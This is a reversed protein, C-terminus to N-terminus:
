SDLTAAIFETYDIQGSKDTDAKKLVELLEDANEIKLQKLGDEIEQFSLTGDGNKDIALFIDKLNKIDDPGAQVAIATMAAQQMKTYHQTKKLGGLNKIKALNDKAEGKTMMKVWKHDLVETASLRREPKCIMKKILDKAEKSIDAWEEGDFDYKGKIVLRLIEQDDDGCFAPYGCLLTYLICGAAWIDCKEDYNGALVEPSIYYPTGAKTEMKSIGNHGKTFLKSLGFDIIKIDSTDEKNEYLFNEPKLDRHVIGQNHCYNVGMMIQKFTHAAEHETFFEKEIIKDFLEGGTCLETILYFNKDDEFYEYLKLIHPHDVQQLISIEAKFQDMNKVKKRAITKLARDQKSVRHRCKSVVGFAGSGLTKKGLKYVDGLPKDNKTIMTRKHILIDSGEM